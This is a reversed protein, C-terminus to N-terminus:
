WTTDDTVNWDASLVVQLAGGLFSLRNQYAGAAVDVIQSLGLYAGRFRQCPTGCSAAHAALRSRSASLRALSGM